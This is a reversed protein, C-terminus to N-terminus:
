VSNEIINSTKMYSLERNKRKGLHTTNIITTAVPEEQEGKQEEVEVQEENVIEENNDLM